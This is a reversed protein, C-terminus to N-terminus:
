LLLQGIKSAPALLTFWSLLLKPVRRATLADINASPAVTVLLTVTPIIGTTRSIYSLTSPPLDACAHELVRGNSIIEMNLSTRTSGLGSLRPPLEFGSDSPARRHILRLTM